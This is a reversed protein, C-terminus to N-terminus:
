HNVGESMQSPPTGDKQDAARGIRYRRQKGYRGKGKATTLTAKRRLVTVLYESSGHHGLEM